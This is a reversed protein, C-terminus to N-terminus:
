QAVEENEREDGNVTAAHGTLTLFVDDLSPRRLALDVLRVGADDLRRVADVLTTAGDHAPVSLRNMARDFTPAADGVGELARAASDLAAGDTVTVDLLDGALRRKLELPTGSEIVRGHDIVVIESALQDAEELYQTTLLISAGEEVLDRLYAWLDIRNAPDLGTTPEDLLLVRPRAVLGAGLDIRRRMGGSYTKLQRDAADTLSVRELVEQAAKAADRKSLRSLRGIMELNERGTLTEDVAANQGALGIVRRVATPEKVVDFGAIRATGADPPILTSLIRVLTTKGAGNPGLLAVVRGEPVALDLGCLARTDGFSREVGDVEVIPNM